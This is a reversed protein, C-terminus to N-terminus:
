STAGTPTPYTRLDEIAAVLADPDDGQLRVYSDCLTGDSARWAILVLGDTEVVRDITWTARGAGVLEDARLFIGPAGALDLAVGRDTVTVGAKARFELHRVALRDLPQDHRTTAVYLGDFRATEAGEAARVPASTGADRRSRRRWGWAMAGLIVAAIAAMMLLGPLYASM